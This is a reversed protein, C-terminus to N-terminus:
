KEQEKWQILQEETFIALNIESREHSTFVLAIRGDNLQISYPYAYSDDGRVLDRKIEWTKGNDMSIAVSLPSRDIITNNYFLLLHGNKLKLLDVAANPNVFETDVGDTWTKGADFSETKVIFGDPMPTYGGGRRCYALLHTDSLAVVSPQLNGIRSRVYNSQTWTHTKLDHIFFVSSTDPALLEPDNGTERYIPLIFKDDKLLLPKCRVLTGPELTLLASDSWTNADDTSIKYHIHSTCWTDGYRVVYFLWVINNPGQWVVPNGEGRWPTDAIVKPAQWQSEGKPLRSGYVKADEEYEGSGCYYSLYLDGNNLEAISAPHKYNGGPTETGFVKQINIDPNVSQVEAFSYTMGVFAFVSLLLVFTRSNM